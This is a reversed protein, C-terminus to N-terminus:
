FHAIASFTSHVSGPGVLQKEPQVFDWFFSIPNTLKTLLYKTQTSSNVKDLGSKRGRALLEGVRVDFSARVKSIRALFVSSDKFSSFIPSFLVVTLM